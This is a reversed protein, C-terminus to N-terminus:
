PHHLRDADSDDTAAADAPRVQPIQARHFTDGDLDNAIHVSLPRLPAGLLEADRVPRGVVMSDKGVVLNVGDEDEDRLPM